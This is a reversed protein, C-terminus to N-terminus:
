IKINEYRSRIYAIFRDVENQLHKLDKTNDIIFTSLERKKDIPIQAEIRSTAEDDLYGERKILREKQINPTTYVLLVENAKYNGTEFYLPIDLIYPLNREEFKKAKAKIEEKIKPHLFNELRKREKEDSFILKGLAKRDIKGDKLYENGFMRDIDLSHADLLSHAIKDADIISFGHLRLLNAVSSKGTAIGGTLVIGNPFDIV